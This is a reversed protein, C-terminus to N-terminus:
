GALEFAFDEEDGQRREAAKESDPLYAAFLRNRRAIQSPM